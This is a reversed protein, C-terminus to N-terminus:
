GPRCESSDRSAALRNAVTCALFGAALRVAIPEALGTSVGTVRGAVMTLGLTLSAALVAAALLDDLRRYGSLWAALLPPATLIVPAIVANDEPVKLGGVVILAVESVLSVGTYALAFVWPPRRIPKTAAM